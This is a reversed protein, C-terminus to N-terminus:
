IKEIIFGNRFWNLRIRRNGKTYATDQGTYDHEWKWGNAQLKKMLKAM